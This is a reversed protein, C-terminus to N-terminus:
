RADLSAFFASPSLGCAAKFDRALHAQDTYGLAAALDALTRDDGRELRVTVEQLRHRRIVWKPSAGVYARFIRQVQRVTLAATGALAEVTLLEPDDHITRVLAVAEAVVPDDRRREVLWTTLAAFAADDDDIESLSAHLEDAGDFVDRLPVIRDTFDGADRDTFGRLAGAHLKVGRVRGEDALTRTWLKTWVGVVRAGVQEGDGDELVFHVSPDALLRSEHPPEGRLSWRGSWYAEVLDGLADPPLYREAHIRRGSHVNSVLGRARSPGTPRTRVLRPGTM